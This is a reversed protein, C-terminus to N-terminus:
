KIKRFAFKMGNKIRIYGRKHIYIGNYNKPIYYKIEDPWQNFEYYSVLDTIKYGYYGSIRYPIFKFYFDFDIFSYQKDNIDTAIYKKFHLEGFKYDKKHLETLYINNIIETPIGKYLEYNHLPNRLINWKFFDIFTGRLKKNLLKPHSELVKPDFYVGDEDNGWIKRFPEKLNYPLDQFRNWVQTKERFAYMVPSLLIGILILLSKKLLEM